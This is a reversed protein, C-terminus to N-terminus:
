SKYLIYFIILALIPGLFVVLDIFSNFINSKRVKDSEREDKQLDYVHKQMDHDLRMKEIKVQDSNIMINKSGCFPCSMIEKSSDFEMTGNCEQCKLSYVMPGASTQGVPTGCYGCFRADNSVNKGCKSCIM